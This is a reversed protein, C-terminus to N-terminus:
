KKDYLTIWGLKLWWSIENYSQVKKDPMQLLMIKIKKNHLINQAVVFALEAFSEAGIYGTIGNKDENMVFVVDTNELNNFFKAFVKPYEQFFKEKEIINPFAVVEYGKNEWFLKWYQIKSQLSASGIIVLKKTM